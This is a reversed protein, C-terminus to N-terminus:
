TSVSKGCSILFGICASVFDRLQSRIATLETTIDQYNQTWLLIVLSALGIISVLVVQTKKGKGVAPLTETVIGAGPTKPPTDASIDFGIQTEARGAPPQVTAKGPEELSRSAVASSGTPASPNIVSGSIFYGFISAASTRVIIDITGTDRSAFAGTFLQFGMYFFLIGMYILLFRDVVNLNGAAKWFKRM